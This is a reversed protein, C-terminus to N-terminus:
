LLLILGDLFNVRGLKLSLKHMKMVQYQVYRKGDEKDVPLYVPGSTVWVNRFKATLDRCYMEMRNWFDANNDYDQPVINSLKFSDRM